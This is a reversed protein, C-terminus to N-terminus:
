GGPLSGRDVGLIYAGFSTPVNVSANSAGLAPRIQNAVMFPIANTPHM